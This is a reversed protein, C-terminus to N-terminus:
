QTVIERIRRKSKIAVHRGTAVNTFLYHTRTPTSRLAYKPTYGPLVDLGDFRGDVWAGNTLRIRYVKGIVM